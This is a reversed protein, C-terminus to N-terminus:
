ISAFRNSLKNGVMDLRRLQSEFLPPGESQYVFRTKSEVM